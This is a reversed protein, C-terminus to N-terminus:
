QERNKPTEAWGVQNQTYTMETVTAKWKRSSPKNPVQRVKYIKLEDGTVPNRWHNTDVETWEGPLAM